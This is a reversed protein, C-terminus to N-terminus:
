RARTYFRYYRYAAEGYATIERTDQNYRTFIRKLDVPTYSSFDLRGTMEDACCLLNLAGIEINMHVDRHLRNWVLFLDSARHEDLRHDAQLGLAAYSTM